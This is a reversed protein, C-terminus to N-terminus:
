SPGLRGWSPGLRGWSAGLRARSGGFAGSSGRPAGGPRGLSGLGRTKGIIKQPNAGEARFACFCCPFDKNPSTSRPERLCSPIKQLCRPGEQFRTSADKLGRSAEQLCRPAEQPRSQPRKPSNLLIKPRSSPDQLRRRPGRGRIYIYIYRRSGHWVLAFSCTDANLAFPLGCLM